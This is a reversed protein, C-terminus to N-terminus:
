SANTIIRVVTMRPFTRERGETTEAREDAASTEQNADAMEERLITTPAGRVWEKPQKKTRYRVWIVTRILCRM